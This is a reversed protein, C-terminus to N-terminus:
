LRPTITSPPGEGLEVNAESQSIARLEFCYHANELDCCINDQNASWPAIKLWKNEQQPNSSSTPPVDQHSRVM